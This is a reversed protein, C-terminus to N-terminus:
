YLLTVGALGLSRVGLEDSISQLSAELDAVRFVGSVRRQALAGPAVLLHGPRYRNLRAVVEGLPQEDFVLLGRRWSTLDDLRGGLPAQVSGDENRSVLFRTGLARTSGGASEVVFPRTERGARPAARFIASGELLRVRRERSDYAVDIASQADLEVESGDVLRLIRVEGKGTAHDALWSVGADRENWASGLALLVAAAAAWGRWGKRRGGARRPANAVPTQVMTRPEALSGLQKWTRQALALAAPHRPDAALWGDLAERRSRDLDGGDLRIAWEAAQQRIQQQEQPSNM